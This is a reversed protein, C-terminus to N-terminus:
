MRKAVRYEADLVKVEDILRNVEETSTGDYSGRIHRKKDILYITSQHVLTSDANQIEFGERAIKMLDTRNGTLLNWYGPDAHVMRAYEKLTEPTDMVPNVSFAIVTFAKLYNLKKQMRFFQAAIKPCSTSCTTCIFAAAFMKGELTKETVAAGDQNVFNFDPISAYVTDKGNAALVKTGYYNLKKYLGSPNELFPKRIM